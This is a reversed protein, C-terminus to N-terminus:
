SIAISFPAVRNTETDQIRYGNYTIATGIAVPNSLTLEVENHGTTEPVVRAATVTAGLITFDTSRLPLSTDLWRIAYFRLRAVAGLISAGLCIPTDAANPVPKDARDIVLNSGTKQVTYLTGQPHAILDLAPLSPIGEVRVQTAVGDTGDIRESVWLTILWDDQGRIKRVICRISIDQQYGEGVVISCPYEFSPLGQKIRGNGVGQLLDGDLIYRDLWSFRAHVKGLEMQQMLWHPPNTPDYDPYYIGSRYDDAADSSFYGAIGGRQGLAYMCKLFGSYSAIGLFWPDETGKGENHRWGASVFNYSLPQNYVIIQEAVASIWHSLQDYYARDVKNPNGMGSTPTFFDKYYVSGSPLDGANDVMYSYDLTSAQWDPITSYPHATTIYYVYTQRNPAAVKVADYFRRFIKGARDAIYTLWPEAGRAALVKADRGFRNDPNSGLTHLGEEGGDYVTAINLGRAVMARLPELKRDTAVQMAEATPEPSWGGRSGDTYTMYGGDAEAISPYKQAIYGSVPYAQPNDAALKITQGFISTPNPLLSDSMYQWNIRLGYGWSLCQTVNLEYDASSGYVYHSLRYLRHNPRFLPSPQAELWKGWSNGTITKAATYGYSTPLIAPKRSRMLNLFNLM